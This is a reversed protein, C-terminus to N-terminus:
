FNGGTDYSFRRESQGYALVKIRGLINLTWIEKGEYGFYCVGRVQGNECLVRVSMQSM